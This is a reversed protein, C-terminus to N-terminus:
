PRTWDWNETRTKHIKLMETNDGYLVDLPKDALTVLVSNAYWKNLGESNEALQRIQPLVPRALERLEDLSSLAALRGKNAQEVLAKLGTESDGAYVLAEAATAAVAESEDNILKRLQAPIKALKGLSALYACGSAGWFRIEPREHEMYRVLEPLKGPNASSADEAATLLMELPYDPQHAWTYLSHGQNTLQTRVDRTIFGLDKSDRVFKSNARRLEQLKKSYKPDDALNNLEFPDKELDFLMEKPKPMFFQRHEPKCKGAAFQRDWAQYSPMLWDYDQRLAHPKYPTYYRIYSFRGDYVVRSPDFHHASNTRFCHLYKQAPAAYDGMFAKGLMYDPPKVGAISLATPGFDAFCVLRESNQGRGAPLLHKFKEPAYIILPVQLGTRYPFEKSRPLSGSGNDAFFFIITEELLGRKRLDDIFLGAWRDVRRIGDLHLTYDARCQPLDPVYPPLDVENPDIQCPLRGELTVTTTLGQHTTGNNFQALFPKGNRSPDNYTTYSEHPQWWKTWVDWAQDVYKQRCEETINYDTTKGISVTFYGADRMLIPWFYQSGPIIHNERHIDNGYTTAHCGSILTSRAPSCQPGNSYANLFTVGNQALWDINPTKITKNGYAPLLYPSTDEFVLWLINPRKTQGKAYCSLKGAAITGAITSLSTRLFARRSISSPNM